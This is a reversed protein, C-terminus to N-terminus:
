GVVLSHNFQNIVPRSDLDILKILYKEGKECGAFVPTTDAEAKRALYYTLMISGNRNFRLWPISTKFKNKLVYYTYVYALCPAKKAEKLSLFVLGGVCDNTSMLWELLCPYVYLLVISHYIPINLLEKVVEVM